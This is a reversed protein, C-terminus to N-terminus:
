KTRFERVSGCVLTENSNEKEYEVCLSFFIDTNNDLGSITEDFSDTGDVDSDVLVKQLNENNEDIDSYTDFDGEVDRVQTDDEGYVFFAVGNEFDNMDIEGRLEASDTDISQASQTTAVPDESSNNNTSDTLFSNTVGYDKDGNEDVAVARFYYRTNDALGSVSAEQTDGDDNNDLNERTTRSSLNGSTRGYEFYLVASDENNMDVIAHLTASDEDIDTASQTRVDVDSLNSSGNNIREYQSLILLLRQIYAELSALNNNDNYYYSGRDDDDDEDREFKFKKGEGKHSVFCKGGSHLYGNYSCSAEAVTPVIFLGYFSLVFICTGLIIKNKM